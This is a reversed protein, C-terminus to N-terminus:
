DLARSCGPQIGMNVIYCELNCRLHHRRDHTLPFCCPRLTSYCCTSCWLLHVTRSIASRHGPKLRRLSWATFGHDFRAHWGHLGSIPRVKHRACCRATASLSQVSVIHYSMSHLTYRLVSRSDACRRLTWLLSIPLSMAPLRLRQCLHDQSALLSSLVAASYSESSNRFTRAIQAVCCCHSPRDVVLLSAPPRRWVCLCLLTSM